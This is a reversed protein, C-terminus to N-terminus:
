QYAGHPALVQSIEHLWEFSQRRQSMQAGQRSGSFVSVSSCTLTFSGCVLFPVTPELDLTNLPVLRGKTITMSLQFSWLSTAKFINMTNNAFFYHKTANIFIRKWKLTSQPWNASLERDYLPNTLVCNSILAFCLRQFHPHLPQVEKKCGHRPKWATFAPLNPLFSYVVINQGM